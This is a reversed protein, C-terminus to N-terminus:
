KLSGRSGSNIFGGDITLVQGNIYSCDPSVLWCIFRAIEEPTGLRKLPVKNALDKSIEEGRYTEIHNTSTKDIDIFGPAVCNILIGKSAYEDALSMTLGNIAFKSASYASMTPMAMMGGVSSINIIHGSKKRRMGPLVMRILHMPGIYNTAMQIAEDPESMEEVVTRYSIGANNILIDVGGYNAEIDRIVQTGNELDTVDLKYPIVDRNRARLESQFAEFKSERATAIVRFKDGCFEDLLRKGIGSSCGTILVNRPDTM